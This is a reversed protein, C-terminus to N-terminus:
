SLEIHVKSGQKGMGAPEVMLKIPVRNKIETVHSILGIARRSSQLNELASIVEELLNDDLTGFGEDLFFLELPADNTLQIQNSLALALALSALFLEGGSLTSTEREIGGNKYDKIVFEGEDNTELEYCGGSIEMLTKSAAQSVYKLRRAAVFQVFKKGKFLRELEKLMAITHEIQKKKDSIKGIEVLREHLDNVEFELKIKRENLNKQQIILQELIEKTEQWQEGSISREGLRERIRKLNTKIAAEKDNFSEINISKLAITEDPLMVDEVEKFCGFGAESIKQGMLSEREKLNREIETKQGKMGEYLKQVITFQGEAERKEDAAAKFAVELGHIERNLKEIYGNIDKQDGVKETIDAWLEHYRKDKHQFDNKLIAYTEKRSSLTDRTINKKEELGRIEGSMERGAEELIEREREKDTIEEMAKIFSEVPIDSKLKGYRKKATNYKSVIAALERETVKLENEIAQLETKEKILRSDLRNAESQTSKLAEEAKTVKVKYSKIEEAKEVYAIELQHVDMKLFDTGLGNIQQKKEEILNEHMICRARLDSISRSICEYDNKKTSLLQDSQVGKIHELHHETSGCVPCIEGTKLSKRLKSALNSVELAECEKKLVAEKEIVEQLLVKADSVIKESEEKEKTLRNYAERCAAYQIKLEYLSRLAEETFPPNDKLCTLAEEARYVEKQKTQWLEETEILGSLGKKKVKEKDEIKSEFSEKQEKLNLFNNEALVGEQVNSKFKADVRLQAKRAENVALNEQKKTLQNLISELAMNDNTMETEIAAQNELNRQIERQIEEATQYSKLAEAAKEERKQLMPLDKERAIHIEEYKAEADAKIKQQKVFNDRCMELKEGADKLNKKGAKWDMVYSIVGAAKLANEVLHREKDIEPKQKGAEKAELEFSKLEEQFDWVEKAEKFTQDAKLFAAEISKIQTIVDDFEFKKSKYVAEDVEGYAGLRGQLETNAREEKESRKKLKLTLQEGYQELNFLRELMNNRDAGKLTLFESFKGQPLVVTRTFDDCSLGIIEMCTANVNKVGESLVEEVFISEETSLMMAVVKCKGGRPRNTTKDLKFEREVRYKKCPVGSIQFEFCVNASTVNANIYNDSKRSVQGYLALTVGDLITSKGSGTPGFIGFLKNETLRNFDIEQQEIFSNIGKIKLKLPKM